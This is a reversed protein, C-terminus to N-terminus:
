PSGRPRHGRRGYDADSPRRGKARDGQDVARRREEKGLGPVAATTEAAHFEKVGGRTRGAGGVSGKM